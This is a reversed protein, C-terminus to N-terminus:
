TATSSATPEPRRHLWCFCFRLPYDSSSLPWPIDHEHDNTLTDSVASDPLFLEMQRTGVAQLNLCFGRPLRGADLCDGQSSCHIIFPLYEIFVTLFDNREIAM